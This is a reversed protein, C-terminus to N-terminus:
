TTHSFSKLQSNRLITYRRMKRTILDELLWKIACKGCFMDNDTFDNQFHNLVVICNNPWDTYCVLSETWTHWHELSPQQHAGATRQRLDSVRSRCQSVRFQRRGSRLRTRVPLDFLQSDLIRTAWQHVCRLHVDGAVGGSRCYFARDHQLSVSQMAYWMYFYVEQTVAADTKQWPWIEMM